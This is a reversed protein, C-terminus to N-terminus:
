GAKARFGETAREHLFLSINEDNHRLSHFPLV